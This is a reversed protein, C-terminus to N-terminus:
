ERSLPFRKLVAFAACGNQELAPLFSDEGGGPDAADSVNFISSM